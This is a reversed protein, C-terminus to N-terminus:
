AAAAVARTAMVKVLHARYDPSAFLDSNLGEASVTVGELAAPSFDTSLVKEMATERFVCDGAGTVAVRVASGFKAVFVGTLAYRSAPQDFKMYAAANPVPFAVSTIIEGENLATDFMATFFDDAPIDRQNTSITAGLALVAAPYDAAPDNNAISGGLTGLNRVHMDAINGALGALAPLMKQVEPSAAVDTHCTLAGITIRDGDVTVGRLGPIDGLDIIDSPSLLRQKLTPILTQGGAILWPDDLAQLLGTAEDLTAPRHYAFDYM